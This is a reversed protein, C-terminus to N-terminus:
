KLRKQQLLEEYLLEDKQLQVLARRWKKATAPNGPCSGILSSLESGRKLKLRGGLKTVHPELDGLITIATQLDRFDTPVKPPLNKPM